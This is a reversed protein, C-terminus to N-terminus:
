KSRSTTNKEGTRYEYKDIPLKEILTMNCNKMELIIM